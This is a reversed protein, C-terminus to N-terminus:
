IAGEGQQGKEAERARKEPSVVGEIEREVVGVAHDLDSFWIYICAASLFTAAGIGVYPWILNPDVM